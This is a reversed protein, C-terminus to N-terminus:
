LNSQIATMKSNLEKSRADFDEYSIKDANYNAELENLQRDVIGM